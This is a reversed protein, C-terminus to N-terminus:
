QLCCLILQGHCNLGAPAPLVTQTSGAQSQVTHFSMGQGQTIHCIMAQYPRAHCCKQRQSFVHQLIFCCLSRFMRFLTHLDHVLRLQGPRIRIISVDLANIMAKRGVPVTPCGRLGQQRTKLGPCTSSIMIGRYRLQLCACFYETFLYEVTLCILRVMHRHIIFAHWLLLYLSVM